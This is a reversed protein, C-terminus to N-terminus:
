EPLKPSQPLHTINEITKVTTDTATDITTNQFSPTPEEANTLKKANKVSIALIALANKINRAAYMVYGFSYHIKSLM